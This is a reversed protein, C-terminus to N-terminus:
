NENSKAYQFSIAPTNGLVNNLGYAGIVKFDSISYGVGISFQRLAIDMATAVKISEHVQYTIATKINPNRDIVKLVEIMWNVKDSVIYNVGLGIVAPIHAVDTLNAQNADSIFVGIQLYKFPQALLGVQFGPVFKTGYERINYQYGNFAIGLSLNNALKRAYTLQLRRENYDQDGYSVFSGGLSGIKKNYVAGISYTSLEEFNYKRDGSIDIAYKSSSYVLGAPNGYIANIGSQVSKIYGVALQNAGGPRLNSQSHTNSPSYFYILFLLLYSASQRYTLNM